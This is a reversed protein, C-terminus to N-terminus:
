DYKPEINKALGWWPHHHARRDPPAHLRVTEEETDNVNIYLTLLEWGSGDMTLNKMLEENLQIKCVSIIM